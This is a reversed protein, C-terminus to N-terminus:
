GRTRALLSVMDHNGGHMLGFAFSIAVLAARYGALYGDLFDGDQGCANIAAGAAHEAAQLANLIDQPYYVNLAM